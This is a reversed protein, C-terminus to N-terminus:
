VYTDLIVQATGDTFFASVVVHDASSTGRSPFTTTNGVLPPFGTETGPQVYQDRLTVNYFSVYENDQGGYWTVTINNRVQRAIAAVMKGKTVSGAIGFAFSAVVAAIIVTVALMLIAGQIPSSAETRKMVM